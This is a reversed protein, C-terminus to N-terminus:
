GSKNNERDRIHKISFLYIIGVTIMVDAINFVPIISIHIYDIVAKYIFRDLLNSLSGLVVCVAFVKEKSNYSRWKCVFYRILILFLVCISFTIYRGYESTNFLGVAVGYNLSFTEGRNFKFYRDLVFLLSPILYLSRLLSSNSEEVKRFM